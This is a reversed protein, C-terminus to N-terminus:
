FYQFSFAPQSSPRVGPLKEQGLATGASNTKGYTSSDNTKLHVEMVQLESVIQHSSSRLDTNITAEEAIPITEVM